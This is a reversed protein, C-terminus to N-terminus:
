HGEGGVAVGGDNSPGIVISISPGRPDPGPASADPGLLPGLQDLGPSHPAPILPIGHRQGGGAVGGDDSAVCVVPKTSGHPDPGPAPPDPGLLPGLQDAGIGHPGGPLANEHGEGGVAVGGDDSPIIVISRRPGRPEPGPAPPHPGLLPGLQDASAGHADGVLANGHGEGGVPVGGHDSSRRVIGVSPRRPDERPRLPSPVMSM